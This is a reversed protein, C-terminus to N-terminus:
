NWEIKVIGRMQVAEGSSAWKLSHVLFCRHLFKADRVHRVDLVAEVQGLRPDPSAM